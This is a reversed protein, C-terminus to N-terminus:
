FDPHTEKLIKWIRRKEDTGLYSYRTADEVRDVGDDLAEVLLGLIRRKLPGPLQLFADSYILPSCRNEFVREQLRLDKLSHGSGDRVAQSEYDRVFDPHGRIGDPLPAEGRFLLHDVVDRATAEFVRVVSDYVPEETVPEGFAKQLGEQYALMRRSEHSARTLANHMAVQHEFVLLAVIDSDSRLYRYTPFRDQLNTVNSGLEFTVRLTEGVEEAQVNGRHTATGHEGTVYWGGWREEFPTRYDVVQSGHRLLMEGTSDTFVSRAFVSPIGRVFSGGHCRLCDNDRHFLTQDRLLPRTADRPDLTYFVPGLVPDMATLEILGGPVWGVYCDDSFFLARPTTPAIRRRQLSTKSFVLMQSSEPIDLLALLQRLVEKDDGHFVEPREKLREELHAIVDQPKTASYSIPPREYTDSARVQSRGLHFLLSSGLMVWLLIVPLTPLIRTSGPRKAPPRKPQQDPDITGDPSIPVIVDSELRKLLIEPRRVLDALTYRDLVAFFAQWAEQLAFQLKCAHILPCTNTAPDFCEILPSGTETLRVVDGIRITSPDREL